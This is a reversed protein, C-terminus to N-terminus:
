EPSPRCPSNDTFKALETNMHALLGRRDNPSVQWASVLAALEKAFDANREFQVSKSSETGAPQGRWWAQAEILNEESERFAVGLWESYRHHARWITGSAEVAHCLSDSYAKHQGSRLQLDVVYNGTGPPMFEAPTGKQIRSLATLARVYDSMAVLEESTKQGKITELAAQWAKWAFFALLGTVIATAATGWMTWYATIEPNLPLPVLGVVPRM